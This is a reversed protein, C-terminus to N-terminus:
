SSHILRFASRGLRYRASMGLGWSPFPFHFVFSLVSKLAGPNAKNLHSSNKISPINKLKSLYIQLNATNANSLSPSPFSIIISSSLFLSSFLTPAQTLSIEGLPVLHTVTVLINRIYDEM